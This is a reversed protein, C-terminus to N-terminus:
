PCASTGRSRVTFEARSTALPRVGANVQRIVCGRQSGSYCTDPHNLDFLAVGESDRPWDPQARWSGLDYPLVRASTAFKNLRLRVTYGVLLETGRNVDLRPAGSGSITVDPSGERADIIALDAPGGVQGAPPLTTLVYVGPNVPLFFQGDERSTQSYVYPRLVTTQDEGDIRLREAIITAGATQCEGLNSACTVQGQLITRPRLEFETQSPEAGDLAITFSESRVLAGVPQEISIVYTRPTAVSSSLRVECAGDICYSSGPTPPTDADLPTVTVTHRGITGDTRPAWPLCGDALWDVEDIGLGEVTVDSTLTMTSFGDCRDPPDGPVQEELPGDSPFCDDISCCTWTTAPSTGEIVTVPPATLNLTVASSSPWPPLCMAGPVSDTKPLPDGILGIDLPQEFAAYMTPAEPSAGLPGYRSEFMIGSPQADPECHSYVYTEFSLQGEAVTTSAVVDRLDLGCEGSALNCAQGPPCDGDSVCVSPNGPPLISNTAAIPEEFLLEVRNEDPSVGGMYSRVTGTLRRHCRKRSTVLIGLDPPRTQAGDRRIGSRVAQRAFEGQDTDSRADTLALTLPIEADTGFSRPWVVDVNNASDEVAPDPVLTASATIALRGLRSPQSMAIDAPFVGVCISPDGSQPAYGSPCVGAVAEVTEEYGVQITQFLNDRLVSLETSGVSVQPDCALLEVEEGLVPDDIVFGLVSRPPLGQPEPECLGGLQTNCQQGAPCDTDDVCPTFVTYDRLDSCAPSVLLALALM